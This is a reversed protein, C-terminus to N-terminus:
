DNGTTIKQIHKGQNELLEAPIRYMGKGEKMNMQVKEDFVKRTNPPGGVDKAVQEM